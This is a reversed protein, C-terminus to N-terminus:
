ILSIICITVLPFFFLSGFHAFTTEAPVVRCFDQGRALDYILQKVTIRKFARCWILLIVTYWIETMLNALDWETHRKILFCHYGPYRVYKKLPLEVNVPCDPNDYFDKGFLALADNLLDPAVDAGCVGYSSSVFLWVHLCSSTIKCM